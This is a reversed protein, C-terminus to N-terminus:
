SQYDEFFYSLWTRNPFGEGFCVLFCLHIEAVGGQCIPFQDVPDEVTLEDPVGIQQIGGKELGQLPMQLPLGLQFPHISGIM